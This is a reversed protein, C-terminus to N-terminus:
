ASYGPIKLARELRNMFFILVGIIAIYIFLLLNMM